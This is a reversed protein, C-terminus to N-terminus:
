AEEPKKAEKLPHPAFKKFKALKDTMSMGVKKRSAEPQDSSPTAETKRSSNPETRRSSTPKTQRSSVPISQRSSTPKTQRSSIRESQRGSVANRQAAMESRHQEIEKMMNRMALLLEGQVNERTNSSATDPVDEVPAKGRANKKRPAM